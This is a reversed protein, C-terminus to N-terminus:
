RARHLRAPLRRARAPRAIAAHGKRSASAAVLAAATPTAAIREVETPALRVGQCSYRQRLLEYDSDTLTCEYCAGQGPVFVRVQGDMGDLAGDVVAHGGALLPPEAGAM